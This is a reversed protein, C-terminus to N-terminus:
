PLPSKGEAFSYIKTEWNLQEFRKQFFAAIREIGEAYLSGSDINVITELDKLFQDHRSVIYKLM